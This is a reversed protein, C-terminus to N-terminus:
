THGTLLGRGMPGGEAQAAVDLLGAAEFAAAYQELTFLGLVHTEVVHEVGAATAVLHHLDLVSCGDESRSVSMRCVKIDPEDVTLAHLHGEDWADPTLWPEVLLVGGPALHRAMSAIAARLREETRVYGISSFLCVVADFSRGLDLATMDGVEVPVGPCRQRAIEVMEPSLDVGMADFRTALHRLHQGTGCAVDLVTRTTPPLLSAVLEAEAAYDKGLGKEYLLDYVRASAGYM